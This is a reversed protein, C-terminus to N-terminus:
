FCSKRAQLMLRKAIGLRRYGRLVSISTVHGHPEEGEQLDDERDTMESLSTLGPIYLFSLFLHKLVNQCPHLRRHSGERRGGCVLAYALVHYPVSRSEGYTYYVRDVMGM